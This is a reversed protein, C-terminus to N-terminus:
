SGARVESGPPAARESLIRDAARALDPEVLPPPHGARELRALEGAGKGTLVLIPRVGAARAAELDREADGVLWSRGLDLSLEAAARELLGPGPKRCRCSRRYSGRGETPHHPCHLVLDLRAGEAALLSLLRETVLAYEAPSMWGRGIASQNTVCVTAYGAAALRAIAGAAGPLLEVDRPDRLAGAVEANITGDRDLFVAPRPDASM